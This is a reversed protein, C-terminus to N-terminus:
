LYLRNYNGVNSDENKCKPVHEQLSEATGFCEGCNNCVNSIVEAMEIIDEGEGKQGYQQEFMDQEEQHIAFVHRSM